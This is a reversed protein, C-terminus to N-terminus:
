PRKDLEDLFHAAASIDSIAPNLRFGAKPHLARLFSVAADRELKMRHLTADVEILRAELRQAYEKMSEARM